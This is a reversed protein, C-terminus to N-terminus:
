SLQILEDDVRDEGIFGAFSLLLTAGVCLVPLGLNLNPVLLGVLTGFNNACLACLVSLALWTGFKAATMQLGLLLYLLSGAAIVMGCELPLAILIKTAVIFPTLNYLNSSLERKLLRRETDWSILARIFIAALRDAAAASGSTSLRPYVSGLFCVVFLYQMAESLVMAPNRWWYKLSRESLVKVQLFFGAAAASSSKLQSATALQMNSKSHDALGTLPPPNLGLQQSFYPLAQDWPGMYVVRGGPSLLLLDDLLMSIDRGPQHLTAVLIGQPLSPGTTSHKSSVNIGTVRSKIFSMVQVATSSDQGSTPEDALVIFPCGMLEVAVALRRREGGSLGKISHGADGVLTGACHQLKMGKLLENVAAKRQQHTCSSLRLAAAFTLAEEATTTALLMDDQKVHATQWRFSELRMAQIGGLLVQGSLKGNACLESDGALISLLTTKGAGSPGLIALLRGAHARGSLNTISALISDSQGCQQVTMIVM